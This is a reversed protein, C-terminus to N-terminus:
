KRLSIQRAFYEIRPRAGADDTAAMVKTAPTTTAIAGADLAALLEDQGINPWFKFLV